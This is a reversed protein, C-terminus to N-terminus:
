SRESCSYVHDISAKIVSMSAPMDILNAFGYHRALNHQTMHFLERGFSLMIMRDIYSEIMDKQWGQNLKKLLLGKNTGHHYDGFLLVDPLPDLLKEKSTDYSELRLMYFTDKDSMLYSRVQNYTSTDLDICSIRIKRFEM